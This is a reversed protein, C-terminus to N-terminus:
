FSFISIMLSIYSDSKILRMDIINLIVKM